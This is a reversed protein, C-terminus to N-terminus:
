RYIAQGRKPGVSIFKVPVNVIKEITKVYKQANKPLTSFNRIKTIDQGWGDLEIYIPKVKSLYEADHGIYGAEKGGLKYGTCLKIKKLTSLVDLKTIALATIGNVEIAEKVLVLDLWGPRRVRGTTTGIEKGEKIIIQADKGVILTPMPGEGVRTTYAKTIGIVHDINKPHLDFCRWIGIVGPNSSTVFPYTGSDIDLFYGQAGEFLINKGKKRAEKIIPTTSGVLTKIKNKIKGYKQSIEKFSLNLRFYKNQFEVEKKLKESFDASMLDKLLLGVRETRDAYTPGVGRSTTGIKASREAERVGDRLKHWTMTLSAQEDIILNKVSVHAKKLQDMEETLSELDVAVNRGVLCVAKQNFIGSPIIHLAFEGKENKVTHGTNSGGNYRAVIDARASLDDVLRGKGSDGWDIGVIALTGQWNKLHKL